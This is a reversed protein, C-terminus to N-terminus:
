GVARDYRRGVTGGRVDTGAWRGRGRRSVAQAAAMRRELEAPDRTVVRGQHEAPLGLMLPFAIYQGSMRGYGIAWDRWRADLLAAIEDPRM